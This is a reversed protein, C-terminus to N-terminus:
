TSVVKALLCVDERDLIDLPDIVREGRDKIHPCFCSIQMDYFLKLLYLVSIIVDILSVLPFLSTLMSGFSVKLSCWKEEADLHLIPM